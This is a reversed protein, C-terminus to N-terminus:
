INKTKNNSLLDLRKTYNDYYIPSDKEIMVVKGKDHAYLVLKSHPLLYAFKLKTDGAGIFSSRNYGGQEIFRYIDLPKLIILRYGEVFIWFKSNTVSLASLKDNMEVEVVINGTEASKYDGKIEIGYGLEPVYIDWNSNPKGTNDIFANSYKEKYFNLVEEEIIDGGVKSDDYEM